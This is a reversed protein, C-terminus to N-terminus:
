RWVLEILYPYFILIGIIVAGSSALFVVGAMIDKVAQVQLDLRPKLIDAFKEVASNLFELTIVLMILFIIVIWEAKSLKFFCSALLVLFSCFVQVRFNQENKFVFSV